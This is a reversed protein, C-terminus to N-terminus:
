ITQQLNIQICYLALTQWCPVPCCLCLELRPYILIKPLLLFINHLEDSTCFTTSWTRRYFYHCLITNLTTLLRRPEPRWVAPGLTADHPAPFLWLQPHFACSFSGTLQISSAHPYYSFTSTSIFAAPPAGSLGGCLITCCKNNVPSSPGSASWGPLDLQERLKM